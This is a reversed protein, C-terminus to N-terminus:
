TRTWILGNRRSCQDEFRWRAAQVISGPEIRLGAPDAAGRTPLYRQHARPM